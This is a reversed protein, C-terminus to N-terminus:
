KSVWSLNWNKLEELTDEATLDYQLPTIAVYNNNVAYIDTGPREDINEPEGSLWFYVRGRRDPIQIIPNKYSRKGLRSLAFGRINEQPIDPININLLIDSLLNEKILNEIITFAVKGAVPYGNGKNKGGDETALSIALAPFGLMAGELAASVTGSYIVDNALNAGNNIGSVILDPRAPLFIEIALKVCDVPTGSVSWAKKAGELYIERARLPASVTIGHSTGSQEQEPAVVYVEFDYGLAKTLEKIGAAECGDDNTILLIM